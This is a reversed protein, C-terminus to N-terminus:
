RSTVSGTSLRFLSSSDNMGAAFLLASKSEYEAIYSAPTQKSQKNSPKGINSWDLADHHDLMDDPRTISICSRIPPVVHISDIVELNYEIYKM